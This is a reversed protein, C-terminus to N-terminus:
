LERKSVLETTAVAFLVQRRVVQLGTTYVTRFPLSPYQGHVIRYRGYHTSRTGYKERPVRQQYIYLTTCTLELVRKNKM